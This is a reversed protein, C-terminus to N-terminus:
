REVTSPFYIRRLQDLVRGRGFHIENLDLLAIDVVKHWPVVRGRYVRTLPQDRASSLEVDPKLVKTDVFRVFRDHQLLGLPKSVVQCIVSPTCFSM